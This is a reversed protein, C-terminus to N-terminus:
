LKVTNIHKYYNSFSVEYKYKELSRLYSYLKTKGSKTIEWPSM